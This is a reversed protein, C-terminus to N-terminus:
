SQIMAGHAPDVSKTVNKVNNTDDTAGARYADRFAALARAHRRRATRESMHLRLAVACWSLRRLWRLHLLLADEAPMRSLAEGIAAEREALRDADRTWRREAELLPLVAEGGDEEGTALARLRAAMEREEAVLARLARAEGLIRAGEEAAASGYKRKEEM